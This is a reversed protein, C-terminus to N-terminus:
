GHTSICLPAVTLLLAMWICGLLVNSQLVRPGWPHGHTRPESASSQPTPLHM